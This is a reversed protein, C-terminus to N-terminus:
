QGVLEKIRKVYAILNMYKELEEALEPSLDKRYYINSLRGYLSYDAECMSEGFLFRKSGLQASFDSILQFSLFDFREKPVYRSCGLASLSKRISPRILFDTIFFSMNGFYAKKVKVWNIDSEWRSMAISWDLSTEATKAVIHSLARDTPKLWADPHKALGAEM